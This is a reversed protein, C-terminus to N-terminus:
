KDWCLWVTSFYGWGLKHVVIYRGKLVENIRIPHYGGVRYDEKSEQETDSYDEESESYHHNSVRKKSTKKIKTIGNGTALM